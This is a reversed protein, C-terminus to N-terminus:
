MFWSPLRRAGGSKDYAWGNASVVGDSVRAVTDVYGVLADSPALGAATAAAILDKTSGINPNIVNISQAAKTAVEMASGAGTVGFTAGTGQSGQLSTCGGTAFGVILVALATAIYQVRLERTWEGM